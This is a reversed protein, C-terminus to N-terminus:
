LARCCAGPGARLCWHCGAACGIANGAIVARWFACTVFVMIDREVVDDTVPRAEAIRRIRRRVAEVAAPRNKQPVFPQALKRSISGSLPWGVQGIQPNTRRTWQGPRAAVWRGCM